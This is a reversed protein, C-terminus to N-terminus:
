NESFQFVDTFIHIYFPHRIWESTWGVGDVRRQLQVAGSGSMKHRIRCM